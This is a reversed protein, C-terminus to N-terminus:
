YLLRIKCWDKKKLHNLLFTVQVKLEAFNNLFLHEWFLLTGQQLMTLSPSVKNPNSRILSGWFSCGFAPSGPYRQQPHPWKLAQPGGEGENVLLPKRLFRQAEVWGLGRRQGRGEAGLGAGWQPGDEESPVERNGLQLRVPVWTGAWLSVCLAERLGRGAWSDRARLHPCNPSATREGRSPLLGQEWPKGWEVRGGVHPSQRWLVSPPKRSPPVSGGTSSSSTCGGPLIRCGDGELSGLEGALLSNSVRLLVSPAEAWRCGPFRSGSGELLRPRASAGATKTSEVSARHPWCPKLSAPLAPEPSPRAQHTLRLIRRQSRGGGATTTTGSFEGSPGARRPWSGGRATSVGGGTRGAKGRPRSSPAPRGPLVTLLPHREEPQRVSRPRM